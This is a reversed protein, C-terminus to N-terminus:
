TSAFTRHPHNIYVINSLKEPWGPVRREYPDVEARVETTDLYGVQRVWKPDTLWTNGTTLDHRHADAVPTHTIEVEVMLRKLGDNIITTWNPETLTDSVPKVLGHLEFTKSNPISSSSYIREVTLTGSSATYTKVVRIIDGASAAPFFLWYDTYLDDQSISSVLAAVVATTTSNGSADVTGAVFRGSEQAAFQRYQLLTPM